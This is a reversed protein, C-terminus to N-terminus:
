RGILPSPYPDFLNLSPAKLNIGSLKRVRSENM